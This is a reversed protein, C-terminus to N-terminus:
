HHYKEGRLISFGRYVQELLLVRALEHPLTMESLKIKCQGKNILAESMGYAGGVVFVVRQSRAIWDQLNGAFARTDLARGHEDCVVVCDGAKIKALLAESEKKIKLAVNKEPSDKVFIIESDVYRKIRTHYNKELGGFCPDKSQGVFIFDLKKM